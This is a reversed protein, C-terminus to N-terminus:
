CLWLRNTWEYEAIDQVVARAERDQTIILPEGREALTRVANEVNEQLWDVTKISGSLKM